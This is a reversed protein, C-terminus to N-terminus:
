REIGMQKFEVECYANILKDIKTRPTRVHQAEERGIRYCKNDRHHGHGRPWSDVYVLLSDYQVGEVVGYTIIANYKFRVKQGKRFRAM